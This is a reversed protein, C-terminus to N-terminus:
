HGCLLIQYAVWHRGVIDCIQKHVSDVAKPKAFKFAGAVELAVVLLAPVLM